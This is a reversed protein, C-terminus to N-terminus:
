KLQDGGLDLYEVDGVVDSLYGNVEVEQVIILRPRYSQDLMTSIPSQM